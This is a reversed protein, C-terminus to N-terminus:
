WFLLEFLCGRVENANWFDPAKYLLPHYVPFVNITLVTFLAAFWNPSQPPENEVSSLAGTSMKRLVTQSINLFFIHSLPFAFYIGKYTNWTDTSHRGTILFEPILFLRWRHGFGSRRLTGEDSEEQLCGLTEQASACTVENGGTDPQWAGSWMRLTFFPKRERWLGGDVSVSQPFAM